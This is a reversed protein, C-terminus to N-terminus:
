CRWSESITNVQSSSTPQPSSAPTWTGDDHKKNDSESVTPYKQNRKEKGKEKLNLINTGATLQRTDTSDATDVSVRSTPVNRQPQNATVRAQTATKAKRALKRAGQRIKSEGKVGKRSLADVGRSRLFDKRAARRGDFHGLNGVNRQLHTKLPEPTSSIICPKKVQDPVLDAGYAADYRRLELFDIM